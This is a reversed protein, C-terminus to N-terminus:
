PELRDTHGLLKYDFPYISFLRGRHEPFLKSILSYNSRLSHVAILLNEDKGADWQALDMVRFSIHKRDLFKVLVSFFNTQGPYFFDGVSDGEKRVVVLKEAVLTDLKVWAKKQIEFLSPSYDRYLKYYPFIDCHDQLVKDAYKFSFILYNRNPDLSDLEDLTILERAEEITKGESELLLRAHDVKEVESSDFLITFHDNASIFPSYDTLSLYDALVLGVGMMYNMAMIMEDDLLELYIGIKRYGKYLGVKEDSMSSMSRIVQEVDANDIGLYNAIKGAVLRQRGPKDTDNTFDSFRVELFRKRLRHFDIIHHNWGDACPFFYFFAHVMDVLRCGFGSPTRITHRQTKGDPLISSASVWSVTADRGDRHTYIPRITKALSSNIFDIPYSHSFCIGVLNKIIETEVVLQGIIIHNQSFAIGRNSGWVINQESTAFGACSILIQEVMNSIHTTGSRTFGITVAGPYGSLKISRSRFAENLMEIGQIIKDKRSNFFKDVISKALNSEIGRDTLSKHIADSSVGARSQVRMFDVVIIIDKAVYHGIDLDICIGEIDQHSVDFHLRPVVFKIIKEIM